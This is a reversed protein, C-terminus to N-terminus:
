EEEKKIEEDTEEDTEEDPLKIEIWEDKKFVKDAIKKLLRM